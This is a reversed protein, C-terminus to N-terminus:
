TPDFAGLSIRFLATISPLFFYDGGRTRVFDPMAPLLHPPLDSDKPQPIVFAPADANEAERRGIVPCGNNGAGMDMGHNIWQRQVFEFQRQLDACIAIFLIGREEDGKDTESAFPGYPIGRRLIRRRNSLASGTWRRKRPSNLQPDLMDRPNGRRVHAGIPCNAGDQDDRYTFDNLALRWNKLETQDAKSRPSPRALIEPIHQWAQQFEMMKKYTPYTVLPAGNQWRGVMKARLTAEAENAPIGQAKAYVEAERRGAAACAPAEAAPRTLLVTVPAPTARSEASQRAMGM